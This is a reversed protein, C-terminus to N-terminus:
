RSEAPLPAPMTSLMPAAMFTVGPDLAVGAGAAGMRTVGRARPAISFTKRM